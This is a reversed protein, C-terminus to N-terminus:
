ILDEEIWMKHWLALNYLTWLNPGYDGEGARHAEFLNKFEEINYSTSHDPGKLKKNLTVHKENYKANKSIAALSALDNLSHDSYGLQLNFKKKLEDLVNINLFQDRAPYISTCHM